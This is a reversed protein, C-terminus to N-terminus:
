INNYGVLSSEQRKIERPNDEIPEELFEQKKIGAQEYMDMAVMMICVINKVIFPSIQEGQKHWLLIRLSLLPANIAAIQLLRHLSKMMTSIPHIGFHSNSLFMITLTPLVLNICAVFIVIWELISGMSDKSEDDFFISLIDVCDMIDFPVMIILSNILHRAPSGHQAKHHASIILLFVIGAMAVTFKLMNCGFFVGSDIRHAFNKYIVGVRISLLVSYVLWAFYSLPFSGADIHGKSAKSHYIYQLEKYSIFFAVVFSFIVAVDSAIWFFWSNTNYHVLYYDLIGGQLIALIIVSIRSPLFICPDCLQKDSTSMKIPLHLKMSVATLVINLFLFSKSSIFLDRM